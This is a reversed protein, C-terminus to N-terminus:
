PLMSPEVQTMVKPCPNIITEDELEYIAQHPPERTWGHMIEHNCSGMIDEAPRFVEIWIKLGDIRATTDGEVEPHEPTVLYFKYGGEWFSKLVEDEASPKFHQHAAYAGTIMLGTFSLVIVANLIKDRRRQELIKQRHSSARSGALETKKDKISM